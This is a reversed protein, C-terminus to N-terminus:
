TSLGGSIYYRIKRRKVRPIDSKLTGLVAEGLEDAMKVSNSTPLGSKSLMVYVFHKAVYLSRLTMFRRFVILVFYIVLM